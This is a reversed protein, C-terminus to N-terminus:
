FKKGLFPIKSLIGKGKTFTSSGDTYESYSSTYEPQIMARLTEISHVNANSAVKSANSLDELIRKQHDYYSRPNTYYGAYGTITVIYRVGYKLFGFTIKAIFAFFANSFTQRIIYSPDIIIDVKFEAKAKAYANAKASQETILPESTSSVVKDVDLRIDCILPNCHIDVSYIQAIKNVSEIKVKEKM